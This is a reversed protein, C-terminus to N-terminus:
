ENTFAVARIGYISELKRAESRFRCFLRLSDPPIQSLAFDGRCRCENEQRWDTKRGISQYRWVDRDPTGRESPATYVVPLVGLDLAVQREIGIGYPEFSMQRYRTRWCMLPVVERPALATFSVTAIGRPMHRASALIRRSNVINRLTDLAGRPYRDTGLLARCYEGRSETPWARNTGRTFHILWDGDFEDLEPNLEDPEIRYAHKVRTTETATRFDDIVRKGAARMEALWRAMTGGERVAIPILVDASSVVERDRAQMLSQKSSADESTNIPRFETLRPDLDFESLIRAVARQAETGDSIPLVIQSPVRLSTALAVQLDWTLMGTSTVLCWGEDAILAAAASLSKVWPTRGCPRIPQRSIMVAVSTPM